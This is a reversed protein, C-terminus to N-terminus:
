AESDTYIRGLPAILGCAPTCGGISIDYSPLGSLAVCGQLMRGGRRPKGYMAVSVPPQVGTQVRLAGEPSHMYLFM